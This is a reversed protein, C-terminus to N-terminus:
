NGQYPPPAEAACWALYLENLAAACAPPASRIQARTLGAWAAFRSERELTAVIAAHAAERRPTAILRPVEGRIM